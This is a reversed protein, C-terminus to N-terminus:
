KLSKVFENLMDTNMILHANAEESHKVYVQGRLTYVAKLKKNRKLRVAHNLIQQKQATLCENLYIPSDGEVGVHQLLLTTNNDKRFQSAAKIITVKDNIDHLKIIIPADTTSKRLTETSNNNKTRFIHKIKPPSCKITSCLAEFTDKLNEDNKKPVGHLILDCAVSAEQLRSLQMEIEKVKNRLSAHLDNQAELATVRDSVSQIESTLESVKADIEDLRSNINDFNNELLHTLKDFRTDIAKFQKGYMSSSLPSNFGGGRSGSTLTASNHPSYIRGASASRTSVGNREFNKTVEKSM